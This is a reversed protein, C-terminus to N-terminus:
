TANEPDDARYYRGDARPKWRAIKAWDRPQNNADMWRAMRGSEALASGFSGFLSRINAEITEYTADSATNTRPSDAPDGDGDARWEIRVDIGARRAARRGERAANRGAKDGDAEIIIERAGSLTDIVAAYGAGCVALVRADPYTHCLAIADVPGECLVVRDARRGPTANFARGKASGWTQRWRPQTREGDQTLAEVQMIGKAIGFLIAGSANEPLTAPMDASSCWRVSAPLDPGDSPWVRRSELYARAPTDDAPVSADAATRALATSAPPTDPKPPKPARPPEPKRERWNADSVARALDVVGGGRGCGYCNWVADDLNVSCSPNRDEHDPLPCRILQERKNKIPSPSHKALLDRFEDCRDAHQSAASQTAYEM